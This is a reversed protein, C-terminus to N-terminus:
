FIESEYLKIDDVSELITSASTLAKYSIMIDGGM